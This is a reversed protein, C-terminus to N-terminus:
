TELKPLFGWTYQETEWMLRLASWTEWMLRLATCTQWGDESPLNRQIIPDVRFFCVVCCEESLSFRELMSLSNYLHIEKASLTVFVTFCLANAYQHHDYQHFVIM